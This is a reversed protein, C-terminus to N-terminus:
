LQPEWPTRTAILRDGFKEAFIVAIRVIDLPTLADSMGNEDTGLILGKGALPQHHGAFVFFRQPDFLLGNDDVYIVDLSHLLDSRVCDFTDVPQSAHSLLSYINLQDAEYEVPEVKCAFPDILIAKIIRSM